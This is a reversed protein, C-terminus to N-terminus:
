QGAERENEQIRRSERMIEVYLARVFDPRLLRHHGEAWRGVHDLIQAERGEDHVAAKLKGSGLALEMRQDLLGLIERDLEDIRERIEQLNM